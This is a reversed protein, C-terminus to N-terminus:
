AGNARLFKKFFFIIGLSDIDREENYPYDLLLQASLADWTTSSDGELWMSIRSIIESIELLTRKAQLGNLYAKVCEKYQPKESLRRELSQLIILFCNALLMAQRHHDPLLNRNQKDFAAMKAIWDGATIINACWLDLIAAPTFLCYVLRLMDGTAKWHNQVIQKSITMPPTCQFSHKEYFAQLKEISQSQIFDRM